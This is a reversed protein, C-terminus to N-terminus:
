KGSSVIIMNEKFFKSLHGAGGLVDMDNDGDVELPELFLGVL